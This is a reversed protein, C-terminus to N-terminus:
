LGYNTKSKSSGFLTKIKSIKSQSNIFTNLARRRSPKKQVGHVVDGGFLIINNEYNDFHKGGVYLGPADSCALTFVSGDLHENMGGNYGLWESDYNIIHSDLTYSSFFYSKRNTYKWDLQDEIIYNLSLHYEHILNSLVKDQIMDEECHEGKYVKLHHFKKSFSNYQVRILDKETQEFDLHDFVKNFASIVEDTKRYEQM